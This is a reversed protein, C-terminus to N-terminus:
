YKGRFIKQNGSFVMDIDDRNLIASSREINRVFIGKSKKIVSFKWLDGCDNVIGIIYHSVGKLNVVVNRVVQRPHSLNHFYYEKVIKENQLVEAKYEM